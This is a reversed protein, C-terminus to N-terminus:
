NRRCKKYRVYLFILQALFLIKIFADLLWDVQHWKDIRVVPYWSEDEADRRKGIVEGEVMYLDVGQPDISSHPWEGTTYIASYNLDYKKLSDPTIFRVYLSGNIIDEDPCTCGSASVKIQGWQIPFIFDRFIFLQAVVILSGILRTKSKKTM